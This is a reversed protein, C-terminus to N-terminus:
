NWTTGFFAAYPQPLSLPAIDQASQLPYMLRQTLSASPKTMSASAIYLDEKNLLIASASLGIARLLGVGSACLKFLSKGSMRYSNGTVCVCSPLLVVLKHAMRPFAWFICSTLILKSFSVFILPSKLFPLQVFALKMVASRTVM